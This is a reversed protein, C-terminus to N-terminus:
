KQGQFITEKQMTIWLLGGTEQCTSQNKQKNVAQNHRRDESNQQWKEQWRFDKGKKGLIM